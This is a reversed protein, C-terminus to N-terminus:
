TRKPALLSLMVNIAELVDAGWGQASGHNSLLRELLPPVVPEDYLTISFQHCLQRSVRVFDASRFYPVQVIPVRLADLENRCDDYQAQSLVLMLRVGHIRGEAVPKCLGPLLTSRFAGRELGELQDLELLLGGAPASAALADCFSVMTDAMFTEPLDPCASLGLGADAVGGAPAPEFTSLGQQRRNLGWNFDRFAAAALAWTAHMSPPEGARRRRGDRMLRLADLWDLKEQGAFKVQVVTMGARKCAQASWHALHSKGSRGEGVVVMMHQSWQATTKACCRIAAHAQRRQSLRAVFREAMASEQQRPMRPLVQHPPVRLALVPYAWDADGTVSANPRRGSMARRASLVAADIDQGGQGILARYFEVAFVQALDGAVEGQMGLTAVAGARMFAQSVNAVPAPEAAGASSRCANLFALRPARDGLQVRIDALKWDVYGALRGQAVDAATVGQWLSLAHREASGQGQGHGIFHLVHPRVEACAAVIEAPSPQELVDYEVDYRLEPSAFLRELAHLEADAAIQTRAGAAQAAADPEACQAILIRVPWDAEAPAGPSGAWRLWPQGLRLALFNDDDDLAREWPLRHLTALAKDSGIDIVTRLPGADRLAQWAKRVAGRALLAYVFRGVDAPVPASAMLAIARDASLPRAADDPDAIAAETSLDLPISAVAGKVATYAGISGDAAPEALALAIDFGAGAKKAVSVSIRLTRM